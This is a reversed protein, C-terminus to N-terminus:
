QISIGSKVYASELIFYFTKDSFDETKYSWPVVEFIGTGSALTSLEASTFVAEAPSPGFRKLIMKGKSDAILVYVSDANSFQGSLSLTFGSSRTVSSPLSGADNYLPFPKDESYTIAPIGNAGSVSWSVTSFSLPDLLDDYLYSNNSQRDLNKGNLTVTGADIFTSSGPATPFTAVGTNFEVPIQIGSVEQTTVTRLAVMVGYADNITHSITVGTNNSTDPLVDGKEDCSAAGMMLLLGALPLIDYRKNM